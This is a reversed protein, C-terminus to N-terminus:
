PCNTCTTATPICLENEKVTDLRGPGFQNALYMGLVKAHKPQPPVITTGPDGPTTPGCGTQVILKKAPKAQYCVLSDATHPSHRTAPTFSVTAGNKDTPAGLKDVPVCLKTVKKLDYRRDAVFQDTVVAQVGKPFLPGSTSPKAKYCKFHDVTPASPAPPPSGLDKETPVLLSAPKGVALLLAGCQNTTSVLPAFPPSTPSGSVSKIAYEELHLANVGLPDNIGEGNKDAPLGLAVPKSVNAAQLDDVEVTASHFDSRLQVPAAATGFAVFKPTLPTVKVKYTLYHDVEPCVLTGACTGGGCVDGTTCVDGDDCSAGDDPTCSSPLGTCTFCLEVQCTVDCGDGSVLNGDDCTEGSELTGTGCDTWGIDALLARSLTLDHNPGTLFPEMLDDPALSTSWHSLTSGSSVPSPAYLQVHGDLGRGSTLFTSTAAVVPGVWHLNGTNVMAALREADTMDPFFLGTSHNEVHDDYPDDLYVTTSPLITIKAKEGTTKDVFSVFGFGHAVEHLAVALFDLDSGPNADLGYYFDRAYGCATNDDILSSFRVRIDHTTSCSGAPPCLDMGTRKNALAIPYLHDAELGPEPPGPYTAWGRAPGGVGLTAGGSGCPLDTDFSAHIEIDVPSDLEMAWADAAVQL